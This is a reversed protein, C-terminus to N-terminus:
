FLCKYLNKSLYNICRDRGGKVRIIETIVLNKKDRFFKCQGNQHFRFEYYNVVSFLLIYRNYRNLM